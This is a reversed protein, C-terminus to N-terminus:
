TAKTPSAAARVHPYLDVAGVILALAMILGYWHVALPGLHVVPDINITIYAIM